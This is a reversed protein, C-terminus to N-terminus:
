VNKRILTQSCEYTHLTYIDLCVMREGFVLSSSVADGNRYVAGLTRTQRTYKLRPEEEEEDEEEDGNGEVEEVNQAEENDGREQKARNEENKPPLM